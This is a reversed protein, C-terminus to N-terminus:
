SNKKKKEILFVDECIRQIDQHIEFIDEESETIKISHTNSSHAFIIEIDPYYKLIEQRIESELDNLSENHSITAKM